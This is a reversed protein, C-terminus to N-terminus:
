DKDKAKPRDAAKQYLANDLKMHEKLFERQADPMAAVEDDDLDRAPVGTLFEGDRGKFKYV